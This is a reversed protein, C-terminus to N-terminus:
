ARAEVSARQEPTMKEYEGPQLGHIKDWAARAVDVQTNPTPGGDRGELRAKQEEELSEFEGPKLNHALDWDRQAIQKAFAAKRAEATEAVWAPGAISAMLEVGVAHLKGTAVRADSENQCNPDGLYTQIELLREPTLAKAQTAM